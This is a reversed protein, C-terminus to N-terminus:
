MEELKKIAVEDNEIVLGFKKAFGWLDKTIRMGPDIKLLRNCNQISSDSLSEGVISNSLCQLFELLLEGKAVCSSPKGKGKKKQCFQGLNTMKQYVYSCSKARRREKKKDRKASKGMWDKKTGEESEFGEWFSKNHNTKNSLEKRNVKEMQANNSLGLENSPDDGVLNTNSISESAWSDDNPWTHNYNTEGIAPEVEFSAKEKNVKKTVSPQEDSKFKLSAKPLGAETNGTTGDMEGRDKVSNAMDEITEEDEHISQSSGVDEDIKDVNYTHTDSM